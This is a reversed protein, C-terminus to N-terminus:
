ICKYIRVYGPEGNKGSMNIALSKGEPINSTDNINVSEGSEGGKSGLISTLNNINNIGDEGDGVYSLISTSSTLAGGAGGGGGGALIEIDLTPIFLRTGGGGGGGAGSYPSGKLKDLDTSGVADTSNAGAGGGAGGYGYGFGGYRDRLDRRGGDGGNGFSGGAGGGGGSSCTDIPITIRNYCNGGKGGYPGSAGGGGASQRMGYYTSNEISSFGGYPGGNIGMGGNSTYSQPPIIGREVNEGSNGKGTYGAIKFNRGGDGGRSQGDIQVSKGTKYVKFGEAGGGANGPFLNIVTNPKTIKIISKYYGGRGGRGGKAIFSILENTYAVSSGAGGGGGSVELEYWGPETILYNGENLQNSPMNSGYLEYM